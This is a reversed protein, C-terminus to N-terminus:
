VPTTQNPGMNEVKREEMPIAQNPVVQNPVGQKTEKKPENKVCLHLFCYLYCHFLGQPEKYNPHIFIPLSEDSSKLKKRHGEKMCMDFIKCNCSCMM